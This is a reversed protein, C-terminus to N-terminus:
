FSDVPEEEITSLLEKLLKDNFADPNSKYDQLLTGIGGAIETSLVPQPFEADDLYSSTYISVNDLKEQNLLGQVDYYITLTRTPAIIDIKKGNRTFKYVESRLQTLDEPSKAVSEFNKSLVILLAEVNENM